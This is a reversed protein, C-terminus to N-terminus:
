DEQGHGLAKKNSRRIRYILFVTAGLLVLGAALVWLYSLIKPLIKHWEEGLFYGLSLFCLIWVFGGSYAFPAFDRYKLGSVGATFTGLHRVGPIFYGFFLTWKGYKEYWAHVKTLKEPTIHLYKGYKELLPLGVTRGVTYNLTIGFTSGLYVTLFAPIPHFYGKSILFGIFTLITEDPIPVSFMGLMQSAFMGPYGYTKIWHLHSPIM